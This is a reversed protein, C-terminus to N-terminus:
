GPLSRRIGGLHTTGFGDRHRLHMSPRPLAPQSATMADRRTRTLGTVTLSTSSPMHAQIQLTQIPDVQVAIAWSCTPPCTTLEQPM